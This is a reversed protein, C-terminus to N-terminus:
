GMEVCAWRNV